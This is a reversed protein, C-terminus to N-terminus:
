ILEGTEAFKQLYPLLEKVQQQTLHMRSDVTWNSPLDTVLYKGMNEDEFVTLKPNDIGLWICDETAISSKQLSCQHGYKDKFKTYDFGRNTQKVKLM